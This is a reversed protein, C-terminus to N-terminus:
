AELDKSAVDEGDKWVCEKFLANSRHLNPNVYVPAAKKGAVQDFFSLERVTRSEQGLRGSRPSIDIEKTKRTTRLRPEIRLGCGRRCEASGEASRHPVLRKAMATSRRYFKEVYTLLRCLLDSRPEKGSDDYPPGPVCPLLQM